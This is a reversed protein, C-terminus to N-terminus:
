QAGGYKLSNKVSARELAALMAGAKQKTEEFERTPDSDAVIGAGTQFTAIGNRVITTRIAIAFELKNDFGLYGVAGAYLGRPVPELESIIQMARLKPAGSVTGAPFCSALADFRDCGERMMGTVQSTIHQVHSFKEVEMFSPVEVSGFAAVKGIDNRALDVLMLHEAREKEDALMEEELRADQEPDTGRPRTGAIPVTSILDNEVKVLMEPSSGIITEDNFELFYLYPSPNLERVETYITFPDGKYPVMFRRSIVTQFIDGARIHDLTKRVAEEFEEQNMTSDPVITSIEGDSDRAEPDDKIGTIAAALELAENVSQHYIEDLDDGPTVVPTVFITCIEAQHDFVAGKEAVFFRAVVSENDRGADLYGKQLNTVMDYAIYGVLGGAFGAPAEQVIRNEDMITRMEKVPDFDSSEDELSITTSIGTGIISRVARRPIGEMSELLFGGSSRLSQYVRAASVSPLPITLTIPVRMRAGVRHCNQSFIEFSQDPSLIMTTVASELGGADGSQHTKIDSDYVVANAKYM